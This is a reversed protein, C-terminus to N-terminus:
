NPAAQDSMAQERTVQMQFEVTHTSPNGDQVQITVPDADYNGLKLTLIYDGDGREFSKTTWVLGFTDPGLSRTTVSGERSHGRTFLGDFRRSRRGDPWRISLLIAGRDTDHHSSIFMKPHAGRLAAVSDSSVDTCRLSLDNLESMQQLSSLVGDDVFSGDLNLTTLHPLNTLPEIAENDIELSSLDIHHLNTCNSLAEIGAPTPNTTRVVISFLNPFSAAILKLDDDTGQEGVVISFVDANSRGNWGDMLRNFGEFPEKRLDSAFELDISHRRLQLMEATEILGYSVRIYIGIVVFM